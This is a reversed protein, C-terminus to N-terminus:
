LANMALCLLGTAVFAPLGPAIQWNAIDEVTTVRVVGEPRNQRAALSMEAERALRDMAEVQADTAKLIMGNAHGPLAPGYDFLLDRGPDFALAGLGPAEIM